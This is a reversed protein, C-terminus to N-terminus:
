QVIRVSYVTVLDLWRFCELGSSMGCLCHHTYKTIISAKVFQKKGTESKPIGIEITEGVQYKNRVTGVDDATRINRMDYDGGYTM